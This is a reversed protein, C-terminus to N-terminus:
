PERFGHYIMQHTMGGDISINEGNIFGAKDYCLYLVANAIDLTGNRHNRVLYRVGLTGELSFGIYKKPNDRCNVM